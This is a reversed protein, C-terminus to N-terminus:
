SLTWKRSSGIVIESKVRFQAVSEVRSSELKVVSKVRGSEVQLELKAHSSKVRSEGKQRITVVSGFLLMASQDFATSYKTHM